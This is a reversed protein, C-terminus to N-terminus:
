TCISTSRSPIISSEFDIQRHHNYLHWVQRDRLNDIFELGEVDNLITNSISKVNFYTHLASTFSMSDESSDNNVTWECELVSDQAGRLTVKYLSTFHASYEQM